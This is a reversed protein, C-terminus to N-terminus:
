KFPHYSRGFALKRWLWELPGQSFYRLWMPAILLQLMNWLMALALYHYWELLYNLQPALHRLLLVGTVSQGIYLTFPIRGVAQLRHALSAALRKTTVLWHIMWLSMPVAAVSVVPEALVSLLPNSSQSLVFAFVSVIFSSPLLYKALQPLGQTFWNSRLGYAGLLMLGLLQWLYTLPFIVLDGLWFLAQLKVQHWYDGTWIAVDHQYQESERYIPLPTDLLLSSAALLLTGMAFFRLALSLMPKPALSLYRLLILGCIAYNFLIDGLWILVCHLVGFLLLWYMRRKISDTHQEFRQWQLYLGAGFLMAFLSIFRDRLVFFYLLQWLSDSGSVPQHPVYDYYSVGMSFINLLLIGLVAVGRITDISALRHSPISQSM